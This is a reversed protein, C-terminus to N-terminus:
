KKSLVFWHAAGRDRGGPARSAEKLLLLRFKMELIAAAPM